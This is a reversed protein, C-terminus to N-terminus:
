VEEIVEFRNGIGFPTFTGQVWVRFFGGNGTGTLNGLIKMSSVDFGDANAAINGTLVANRGKGTVKVDQKSVTLNGTVAGLFLISGGGSPLADHAAQLSSHTAQGATVQTATGVVFDYGSKIVNATVTSTLSAVSAYLAVIDQMSQASMFGSKQITALPTSRPYSPDAYGFNGGSLATLSSVPVDIYGVVLLHPNLDLEAANVLKLTATTVQSITYQTDIAVYVRQGERGTADLHFGPATPPIAVTTSVGNVDQHIAVSHGRAEDFNGSVFGGTVGTGFGGSVFSGSVLVDRTSLGGPGISFGSYIGKPIAGFLKKNLGNSVYPEEWRVKVYEFNIDASSFVAV